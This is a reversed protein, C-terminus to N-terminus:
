ASDSRRLQRYQNGEFCEDSGELIVIEQAVRM